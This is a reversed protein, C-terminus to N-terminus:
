GFNLDDYNWDDESYFIPKPKKAEKKRLKQSRKNDIKILLSDGNVYLPVFEILKGKNEVVMLEDIYGFPYQKQFEKKLSPSLKDFNLYNKM